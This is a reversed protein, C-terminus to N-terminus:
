KSSGAKKKESKSLETGDVKFGDFPVPLYNYMQSRLMPMRPEPYHLHAHGPLPRWIIAQENFSVHVKNIVKNDWVPSAKLALKIHETDIWQLVEPPFMILAFRKENQKYKKSHKALMEIARNDSDPNARLEIM